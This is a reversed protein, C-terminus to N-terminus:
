RGRASNCPEGPPTGVTRRLSGFSWSVLREHGAPGAAAANPGNATTADTRPAWAEERAEAILIGGPDRGIGHEAGLIAVLQEPDQEQGCDGQHHAVVEPRPHINDGPLAEDAQYPLPEADTRGGGEPRQQDRVDSRGAGLIRTYGGPQFQEPDGAGDGHGDRRAHDRDEDQAAAEM